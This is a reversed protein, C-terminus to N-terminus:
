AASGESREKAKCAACPYGPGFEMSCPDYCDSPCKPDAITPWEAALWAEADPDFWDGRADFGSGSSV